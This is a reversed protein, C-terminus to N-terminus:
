AGAGESQRPLKSVRLESMLQGMLESTFEGNSFKNVAQMLMYVGSFSQSLEGNQTAFKWYGDDDDEDDYNEMSVRPTAFQLYFFTQDGYFCGEQPKPATYVDSGTPRNEILETKENGAWQRKGLYWPDGRVSMNLSVLSSGLAALHYQYATFGFLTNSFGFYTGSQVFDPANLSEVRHRELELQESESLYRRFAMGYKAKYAQAQVTFNDRATELNQTDRKVQDESRGSDQQLKAYTTRAAKYDERAQNIASYDAKQQESMQPANSLYASNDGKTNFGDSGSGDPGPPNLLTAGASFNIDLQKIQDNRGTFIYYYAKRLLGRAKIDAFRNQLEQDNPREDDQGIDTRATDVIQLTYTYRRAYEKRYSDYEIEEVDTLIRFWKVFTKGPLPASAPDSDVRRAIEKKFSEVMSLMVLFFQDIKVGSQFTLRGESVEIGDAGEIKQMGETNPGKLDDNTKDLPSGTFFDMKINNGNIIMSPDDLNFVYEDQVDYDPKEQLYYLELALRLSECADWLSSGYAMTLVPIEVVSNTKAYFNHIMSKVNYESGEATINIDVNIMFLKYLFPGAINTPVGGLDNDEYDTTYGKFNIELFVIPRVALPLGLEIRYRNIDDMLTVHGPQVLRFTVEGASIGSSLTTITIDDIQTATVSTQAIVREDTAAPDNDRKLSLKLTYQSLDFQDLINPLATSTLLPDKVGLEDNTKVQAPVSTAGSISGDPNLVVTAM